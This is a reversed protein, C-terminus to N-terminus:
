AFVRLWSQKVSLLVASLALHPTRGIQNIVTDGSGELIQEVNLLYCAYRRSIGLSLTKTLALYSLRLSQPTIYDQTVRNIRRIFAKQLNWSFKLISKCKTAYQSFSIGHWTHILFTITLHNWWYGYFKMFVGSAAGVRRPTFLVYNYTKKGNLCSISLSMNEYM